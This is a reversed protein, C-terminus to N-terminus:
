GIFGKYFCMSGKDVFKIYIYYNYKFFHNILTVQSFFGISQSQIYTCEFKLFDFRDSM